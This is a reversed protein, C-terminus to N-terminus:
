EVVKASSKQIRLAHVLSCSSRAQLLVIIDKAVLAHMCESLIGGYIGAQRNESKKHLIKNARQCFYGEARKKRLAPGTELSFSLDISGLTHARLQM